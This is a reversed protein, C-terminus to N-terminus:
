NGGSVLKLVPPAPPTRTLMEAVGKLHGHALHIYRMSTQISKHGMFAMIQPATAGAIALRTATTHRLVHVIYKPDDSKGLYERLNDWQTRLTANTLGQFVRADARGAALNVIDQSRGLIPVARGADNKTEGSHLHAVGPQCDIPKLRLLESRRFGTDIAFHILDALTLLGMSYCAAQMAREEDETYWHIRQSSEKRRKSFPVTKIWGREQAGKLMVNLAALKKNITSGSNGLDDLEDLAEVVADSDIATIPTDAGILALMQKANILTTREGKSGKWVERYARDYADQLTRSSDGRTAAVLTRLHAEKAAQILEAEKEHASELTPCSVRQRAKGSGVTVQFSDGRPTIPM